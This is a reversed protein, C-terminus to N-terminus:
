NEIWAKVKNMLPILSEPKDDGPLNQDITYGQTGLIASLNGYSARGQPAFGAPSAPVLCDKEYIAEFSVVQWGNENKEMTYVLRAYSHLDMDIGNIERRIQICAMCIASARTRAKNLWVMTNNIKHPAKSEMKRSAEVFGAGSGQYWSIAVTSNKTFCKHMESWLANDRCFREFEIAEIVAFKDLMEEVTSTTPREFLM